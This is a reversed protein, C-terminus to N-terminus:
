GFAWFNGVFFLSGDSLIWYVRVIVLRGQIEVNVAPRSKFFPLDALSDIELATDLTQVVEGGADILDVRGANQGSPTAEPDVSVRLTYYGTALGSSPADLYLYGIDSGTPLDAAPVQEFGQISSVALRLVPATATVTEEVNIPIGVEKASQALQAALDPEGASVSCVFSTVFVCTLLPIMWSQQRM